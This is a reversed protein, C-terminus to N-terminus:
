ATTAELDIDKLGDLMARAPGTRPVRAGSWVACRDTLLAAQRALLGCAIAKASWGCLAAVPGLKVPEAACRPRPAVLATAAPLAARRTLVPSM